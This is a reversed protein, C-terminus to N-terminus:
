ELRYQEVQVQPTTGIKKSWAYFLVDDIIVLTPHVHGTGAEDSIAIVDVVELNQDLIMLRPFLPNTEIAVDGAERASYAVYYYGDKYFVGTPFTNEEDPLDFTSSEVVTLDSNFKTVGIQNISSTFLLVTDDPGLFLSNGIGGLIGTPSTSYEDTDIINGDADIESIKLGMKTGTNILLHEGVALVSMDPYNDEPFEVTSTVESTAIEDGDLNFRSFILHQSKTCPEMPGGTCNKTPDIILSQVVVWFENGVLAARHDAGRGYNDTIWSVPFQKEPRSFDIQTPDSADFVMGQHQIQNKNDPYVMVLYVKGDKYLIEPRHTGSPLTQTAVFELEPASQNTLVTIPQNSTINTTSTVPTSRGQSSWILVGVVLIVLGLTIGLILWKKNV